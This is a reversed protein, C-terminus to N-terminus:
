KDTDSMLLEDRRTQYAADCTVPPTGDFAKICSEWVDGLGDITTQGTLTDAWAKTSKDAGIETGMVRAIAADSAEKIRQKYGAPLPKSWMAARRQELKKLAKEDTCKAFEAILADAEPAPKAGGSAWEALRQGLDEDIQKPPGGFMTKFQEPLKMVSREGEHESTWAPTGAAGPKLLCQLVIEYMFEEGCIPMWGQEVPNKGKVIKLKEKARFTFILNVNLQLIENIMRRRAAKPPGWATLQVAEERTNWQKAMRETEVKHWELVGGPGDHEHSASDVIITKAGRRASARIADLYDLPSFPAGFRVHNFKFLEAYYLARGNETDILDIDGGVMRQIGTALRLTSFTKGSNSPGVLSILLGAAERVAPKAEFEREVRASANM